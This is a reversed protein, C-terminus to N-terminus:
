SEALLAAKSIWKHHTSHPSVIIFQNLKTKRRDDEKHTM